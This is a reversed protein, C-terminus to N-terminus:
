KLADVRDIIAQARGLDYGALEVTMIQTDTWYRLANLLEQDAALGDLVTRIGPTDPPPPCDIFIQIGAGQQFCSAWYYRLIDSRVRGRVMERYKPLLNYPGLGGRRSAVLVYYDALANRLDNDPLLKLEGASRLESYTTDIFTFQWSQSANLFSLLIQWDSAGDMEGTEAFRVAVQAEDAVEQWFAKQRELQTMDAELDARIRSLYQDARVREARAENWNNVQLGIFVGFVVILTEILVTFWDQKRLATTLRRLIM